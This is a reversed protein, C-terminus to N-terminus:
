RRALHPGARRGASGAGLVCGGVVPTAKSAPTLQTTVRPTASSRAGNETRMQRTERGAGSCVPPPGRDSGGAHM